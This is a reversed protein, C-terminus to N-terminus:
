NKNFLKNKLELYKQKYKLYKEKFHEGGHQGFRERRRRLVEPDEILGQMVGRAGVSRERLFTYFEQLERDHENNGIYRVYTNYYRHAVSHLGHQPRTMDDDTKIIIRKDRIYQFERNQTLQDLLRLCVVDDEERRSQVCTLIVEQHLRVVSGIPFNQRQFGFDRWNADNFVVIHFATPSEQRVRTVYDNISLGAHQNAFDHIHYEDYISDYYRIDDSIQDLIENCSRRMNTAVERSILIRDHRDM